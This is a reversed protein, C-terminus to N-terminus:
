LLVGCACCFCCSLVVLAFVLLRRGAVVSRHSQNSWAGSVCVLCAACRCVLTSNLRACAYSNNGIPIRCVCRRVCGVRRRRCSGHCHHNAVVSLRGNGYGHGHRRRRRGYEHGNNIHTSYSSTSITRFTNTRINSELALWCLFSQFFVFVTQQGAKTSELKSYIKMKLKIDDVSDRSFHVATADLLTRSHACGTVNKNKTKPTARDQEKKKEKKEKKSQINLISLKKKSKKKKKTQLSSSIARTNRGFELLNLSSSAFCLECRQAIAKSGFKM